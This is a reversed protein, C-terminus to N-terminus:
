FFGVAGTLRAISVCMSMASPCTWTMFLVRPWRVKTEKTSPPSPQNRGPLPPSCTLFMKTPVEKGVM